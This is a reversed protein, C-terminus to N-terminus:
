QAQSIARVNKLTKLTVTDIFGVTSLDLIISHKRRGTAAETCHPHERMTDGTQEYTTDWIHTEPESEFGKNVSGNAVSGNSHPVVGNGSHLDKWHDPNSGCWHVSDMEKHVSHATGNATVSIIGNQLVTILISLLLCLMLSVPLM